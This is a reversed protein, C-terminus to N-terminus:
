IMMLVHLGRKKKPSFGSKRTHHKSSSNKKKNQFADGCFGLAARTQGSGAAMAANGAANRARAMALM